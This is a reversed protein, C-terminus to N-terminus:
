FIDKIRRKSSLLFKHIIPHNIILYGLFREKAPFSTSYKKFEERIYSLYTDRFKNFENSGFLHQNWSHTALLFSLIEAHFWGRDEEEVAQEIFDSLQKYVAVMDYVSKITASNMFSGQWQRYIYVPKDLAMISSSIYQLVRCFYEDEHRVGIPFTLWKNRFHEKRFVFQPPCVSVPKIKLIEKGVYIGSYKIETWQPHEEGTKDDRLILSSIFTDIEPNSELTLLIDKISDKKLYDDSDIFWIYNGKAHSVGNMRAVSVGLNDQRILKLIPNSIIYDSVVTPSNDTSGDDVVIVEYLSKDADNDLISSLCQGIYKETNYLPIIISLLPTAM